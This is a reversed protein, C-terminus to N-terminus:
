SNSPSGPSSTPLAHSPRHQVSKDLPQVAVTPDSDNDYLAARTAAEEALATLLRSRVTEPMTLGPQLRLLGRVAQDAEPDLDPPLPMADESPQPEPVM